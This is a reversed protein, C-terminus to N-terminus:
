GAVFQSSLFRKNREDLNVIVGRLIGEGYESGPNLCVSKGITVKGRSEHIHGHLTVIPQYKEIAERVATSGAGITLLEGAATQPKLSDDLKPAQDLPTNKPPVHFNFIMADRNKVQDVMSKIKAALEDESTERPTKWPTPNAWGCSLLEFGFIEVVQLEVNRVYKSKRFVEEVVSTDDNGPVGYIPVGLPELVQQAMEFWRTLSEEIANSFLDEVKSPDRQAAEFDEETMRYPYWGGFSIRKELDQLGDSDVRHVVGGITAEYLGTDERRVIPVVMKGTLDGGLILVDANFHKASNLFKRFCIESGHLDSSFFIRKM